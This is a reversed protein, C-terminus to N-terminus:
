DNAKGEQMTKEEYADLNVPIGGNVRSFEAALAMTHSQVSDEIATLTKVPKGAKIEHMAQNLSVMLMNDGGEHGDLGNLDEALKTTDIVQPEQGFAQVTIMHTDINGIIDGMTGMVKIQRGDSNTFACMLFSATKGHEFQMMVIQNDVVDNDCHYVCRGYPGTCLAQYVGEETLDETIASCPWKWIGGKIGTPYNHVYIKECDYPCSDKVKCGDLCRMAAGEPACEKKFYNLSGYSSVSVCKEGMLWAILDMDHCSKALIMPSAQDARRWNGRVFSHAHHFYGVNEMAQICQVDGIIGSEILEHIKQYFVTYRMVHCVTITRDYKKAEERLTICDKLNPSIPKELQIHYGKKLGMLAYQVHTEDQTAIMLLDALRPQALMEEVTNFQNEPAIDFHENVWQRRKEDLEAFAVVRMQDPNARCFKTYDRARLGFGAVAVTVPNNM